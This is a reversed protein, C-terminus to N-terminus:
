NHSDQSRIYLVQPEARDAGLDIVCAYRQVACPCALILTNVVINSNEKLPQLM